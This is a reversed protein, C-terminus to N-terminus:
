DAKGVGSAGTPGTTLALAPKIPRGPPDGGGGEGIRHQRRGRYRTRPGDSRAHWHDGKFPPRRGGQATLETETGEGEWLLVACSTCFALLPPSELRGRGGVVDSSHSRSATTSHVVHDSCTVEVSGLGIGLSSSFLSTDATSRRM